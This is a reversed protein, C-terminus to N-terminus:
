FFERTNRTSSTEHPEPGLRLELDLEIIQATPRHSLQMNKDEDGDPWNGVKADASFTAGKNGPTGADDELSLSYSTKPVSSGEESSELVLLNKDESVQHPHDAPNAPNMSKTIDLSLLNEDSAERLKARDKRHINMHGGLAQANSFGKKCFSCIYSRAIGSGWHDDLSWMMQEDSKGISSQNVDM